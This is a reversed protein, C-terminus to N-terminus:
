CQLHHSLGGCLITRYAAHNVPIGIDLLRRVIALPQRGKFGMAPSDCAFMLTTSGDKSRSLTLTVQCKAHVPVTNTQFVCLFNPDAGAALLIDVMAFDGQLAAALLPTTGASDNQAKNPQLLSFHTTLTYHPGLCVSM